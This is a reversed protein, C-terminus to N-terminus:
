VKRRSRVGFFTVATGLLMLVITSPEPVPALPIDSNYRLKGNLWWDFNEEGYQTFNVALREIGGNDDFAIELIDFFGGDKNDGRHDGLFTLGPQDQAQFPFRATNEYRDVTLRQDNPAVLFLMWYHYGDGSLPDFNPGFPSNLSYIQFQLSNDGNVESKFVYGDNPTVTFAQGRGVWSQPSASFDLIMTASSPSSLFLLVTLLFFCRLAYCKKKM